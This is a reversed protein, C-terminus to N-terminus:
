EERQPLWRGIALFAEFTHNGVRLTLLLLWLTIDLLERCRAAVVEADIQSATNSPAMLADDASRGAAM